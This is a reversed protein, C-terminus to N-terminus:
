FPEMPVSKGAFEHDCDACFNLVGNTVVVHCISGIEKNPDKPDYKPFRLSPEFTPSQMNGNFKWQAGKPKSYNSGHTTWFSHGCKCGPCFFLYDPREPSPDNFQKLVTKEEAM